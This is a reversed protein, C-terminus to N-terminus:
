PQTTGAKPVCPSRKKDAQNPFWSGHAELQANKTVDNLSKSGALSPQAERPLPVLSATQNTQAGPGPKM